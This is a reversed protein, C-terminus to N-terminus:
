FDFISGMDASPAKGDDYRYEWGSCIADLIFAKAAKNAVSLESCPKCSTGQPDLNFHDLACM